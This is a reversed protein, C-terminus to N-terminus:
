FPDDEQGEDGFLDDDDDPKPDKNTKETEPTDDDFFDDEEASTDLEGSEDSDEPNLLHTSWHFIVEKFFVGDANEGWPPMILLKNNGEKLKPLLELNEEEFLKPVQHLDNMKKLIKEPIKLSKRGISVTYTTSIGTGERNIIVPYAEDPNTFDVGDEDTEDEPLANM